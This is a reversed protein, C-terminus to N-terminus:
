ILGIKVSFPVVIKTTMVLKILHLSFFVSRTNSERKGRYDTVYIEFQWKREGLTEKKM